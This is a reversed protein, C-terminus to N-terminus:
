RYGAAQLDFLEAYRGQRNMLDLHTGEEIIEGGSLVIVRSASRVTSLRHSILLSTRASIIQRFHCFVEHEAKADLGATPEDLVVIQARRLYARALAIKQWEGGSLDVGGEFRAGLMQRYGEPLREITMAAESLRASQQIAADDSARGVDGVAINERATLDYRMYDQFIVGIQRRYQDLDYERIDIGDLLIQGATPEYLRSLLKVLTSKGAGNHGVIAVHEGAGLRLNINKLAPEQKGPYCFCVDRFELGTEISRPMELIKDPSGIAPRRELIKILDDLFAVGEVITTAHAIIRGISARSRSFAGTLFTFTGLSVQGAVAQGLVVAYAAYYSTTSVMTLFVGVAARRSGIDRAERELTGAVETYRDALYEGLGFVRVEKASKVSTALSRLYELLRRQPTSRYLASYELASFHSEGFFLPLVALVLIALLWPQLAVLGASMAVLSISEQLVAMVATLLTLRGSAQRNARDLIDYFGPDEFDALDLRASKLILRRGMDNTFRDSLLSDVLADARALSDSAIALVAEVIVLNWVNHKPTGDPTSASIVADIILKPVWLLAVPLMARVIRLLVTLAFLPPSAQWFLLFLRPLHGLAAIRKRWSVDQHKAVGAM